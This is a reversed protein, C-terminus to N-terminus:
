IIYQIFFECADFCLSRKETNVIYLNASNKHKLLWVCVACQVSSGSLCVIHASCRCVCACCLSMKVNKNIPHCSHWKIWYGQLLSFYYACIYYHTHSSHIHPVTHETSHAYRFFFLIVSILNVHEKM